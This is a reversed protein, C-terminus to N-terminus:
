RAAAGSGTSPASYRIMLRTIYERYREALAQSEIVLLNEANRQAHRSFNYSGSITLDDLVMVKNHMFNQADSSGRQSSRKGVLGGYEVLEEWAGIKWNNEPVLGWQHKVGEMQTWDYVGEIPVNRRMLAQLARILDGSTLVVCALTVKRKTQAILEALHDDIWEGEGPAFRVSVRAPQGAYQMLVEGSDMVGTTAIKGDAWLEKFDHSYLYALESSRLILINNDQRSWSEDTFNASGTWVQAHETGADLVIYKNHMLARYGEIGRSPLDLGVVFEPTSEDCVDSGEIPVLDKQSRDDYAIRVKVGNAAREQLAALVIDRTEEDLCFSYIAIDISRTATSLFRALRDAVSRAQQCGDCLFLPEIGDM